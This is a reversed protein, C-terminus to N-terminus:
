EWIHLLPLNPAASADKSCIHWEWVCRSAYSYGFVSASASLWWSVTREKLTWLCEWGRAKKCPPSFVRLVEEVDGGLVFASAAKLAPCWTYGGGDSSVPIVWSSVEAWLRAISAECPPLGKNAPNEEGGPLFSSESIM